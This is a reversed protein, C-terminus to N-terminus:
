CAAPNPFCCQKCGGTCKGFACPGNQGCRHCDHACKQKPASACAPKGSGRRGDDGTDIALTGPNLPVQGFQALDRAAASAAALALVLAIISVLVPKSARM